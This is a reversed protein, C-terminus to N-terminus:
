VTKNIMEWNEISYSGNGKLCDERKEERERQRKLFINQAM